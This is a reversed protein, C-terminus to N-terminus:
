VIKLQIINQFFLLRSVVHHRRLHVLQLETGLEGRLVYLVFGFIYHSRLVAATGSTCVRVRVCLVTFIM